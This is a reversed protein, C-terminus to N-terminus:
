DGRPKESTLLSHREHVVSRCVGYCFCQPLCYHPSQLQPWQNSVFFQNHQKWFAFLSLQVSGMALNELRNLPPKLLFFITQSFTGVTPKTIISACRGTQSLFYCESVFLNNLVAQEMYDESYPTRGQFNSYNHVESVTTLM